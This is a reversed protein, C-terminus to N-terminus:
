ARPILSVIRCKDTLTQTVEGLTINELEIQKEASKMVKVKKGALYFDM